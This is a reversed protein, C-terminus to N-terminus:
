YLVMLRGIRNVNEQMIAIQNTKIHHFLERLVIPEEQDVALDRSQVIQKMYKHINNDIHTAIIEKWIYPVILALPRIKYFHSAINIGYPDFDGYFAVLCSMSVQKLLKVVTKINSGHGRYVFLSSQWEIPLQMYWDFVRSMMAGNEIIIIRQIAPIDLNEIQTTALMGAFAITAKGTKLPLDTSVSAFVLQDAFVNFGGVKEDKLYDVLTMRDQQLTINVSPAVKIHRQYIATLMEYDRHSLLLERGQKVGVQFDQNLMLWTQNLEVVKKKSQIAHKIVNLQKGNMM